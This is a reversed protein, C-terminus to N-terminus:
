NLRPDISNEGEKRLKDLDVKIVKNSGVMEEAEEAPDKIKHIGSVLPKIELQEGYKAVQEALWQKWNEGNVVSADIEELEPHQALIHPKCEDSARRLQHSFLSDDTMYSLIDYVGDIHRPSVLRGTTISLIDGLHFTRNKKMNDVACLLQRTSFTLIEANAVAGSQYWKKWIHSLRTKSTNQM